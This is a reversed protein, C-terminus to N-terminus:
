QKEAVYTSVRGSVKSDAVRTMKKGDPSVSMKDVEILKDERKFSAEISHDDLPKLSVSDFNYSGKVPYFKGDLRANWTEGTPKSYTLEDGSLTFTVLLGNDSASRKQARWSGSTANAGKPCEGVREMTAETTTIQDSAPAYAKSKYTLTKGDATVTYILERIIKGNKKYVLQVTRPDLETVAITNYPHGSVSQDQGDAKIHIEPVASSSDYTGSAVTFSTPKPSLTSQDYITKWTGDFASQALLLSPIMVAIALVLKQMM